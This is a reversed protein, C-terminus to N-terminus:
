RLELLFESVCGREGGCNRGGEFSASLFGVVAQHHCAAPGNANPSLGFDCHFGCLTFIIEPSGQALDKSSACVPM